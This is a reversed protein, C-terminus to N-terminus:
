FMHGRRKRGLKWFIVRKDQSGTLFQRGESHMATIADTHGLCQTVKGDSRYVGKLLNKKSLYYEYYNPEKSGFYARLEQLYKQKM